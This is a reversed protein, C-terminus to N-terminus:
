KSDMVEQFAKKMEDSASYMNPNENMLVGKQMIYNAKDIISQSDKMTYYQNIIFTIMNSRSCGLNVAEADVRELFQKPIFYSVRVLNENTKRPM